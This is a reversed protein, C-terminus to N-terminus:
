GQREFGIALLTLRKDARERFVDGFTRSSVNRSNVVFIAVVKQVGV